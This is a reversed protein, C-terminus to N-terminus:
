LRVGLFPVIMEEPSLGGHRGILHNPTNAWWLYAEDRALLLLDGLRDLLHPNPEGPGFLGQEVAYVPDLFTFQGPWTKEVYERVAEVQGPRVYLYSLRNEGTPFIHLRRSLSPHNALDYHPDPRTTVQGHDATFLLVTGQRAAPKLKDLFLDRFADTFSIFEARIREDDPGYFHSLHDVELWYVYTFSREEPTAELQQRVDIWLEAANGVSNPKVEHFFMHSLGSNIISRHQFAYSKVGHEALHAGLPQFPLFTEPNFGACALTDLSACNRFSMPAHAIMNAVVGYEKLWLEYGVIGHEAPSRGSWLSTLAASTTSPTVSTLPALIGHEAEALRKWTDLAGAEMWRKFRVFSLADMLIIVVKSAPEDRLLPGLLDPRLPEQGLGPAGLLRAVSSALNATSGGHYNPYVLGGGLDLGHIRYSLVEPLLQDTLDPM